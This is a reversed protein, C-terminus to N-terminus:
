LFFYYFYHHYNWVQNIRRYWNTFVVTFIYFNFFKSIRNNGVIFYWIMCINQIPNIAKVFFRRSSNCAISKIIEYTVSGSYMRCHQAIGSIKHNVFSESIANRREHHTATHHISNHTKRFSFGHHIFHFPFIQIKNSSWFMRHNSSKFILNYIFFTQRYGHCRIRGTESLFYSSMTNLFSSNVTYMLKFFLFHNYQTFRFIRHIPIM